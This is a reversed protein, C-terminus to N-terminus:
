SSGKVTRLRNSAINRADSCAQEPNGRVRNVGVALKDNLAVVMQCSGDSRRDVFDALVAPYGDISTPEFYPFRGLSNGRYLGTLGDRIGVFFGVTIGSGEDTNAWSCSPGANEAVAGSTNPTGAGVGYPSLQSRSLVSCPAKQYRSGDLPDAVKPASGASSSASPDEFSPAPTGNDGGDSVAQPSPSSCAAVAMLLGAFLTVHRAILPRM